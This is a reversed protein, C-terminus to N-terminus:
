SIEIEVLECDHLCNLGMGGVSRLGLSESRMAREREGARSALKGRGGHGVLSIRDITTLLTTLGRVTSPHSGRSRSGRRTCSRSATAQRGGELVDDRRDIKIATKIELRDSKVGAIGLVVGLTESGDDHTNTLGLGRGEDKGRALHNDSTGLGLIVGLKGRALVGADDLFKAEVGLKGVELDLVNDARAIDLEGDTELTKSGLMVVETRVLGLQERTEDIAHDLRLNHKEDEHAALDNEGTGLDALLDVLGKLHDVRHQLIEALDSGEARREQTARCTARSGVVSKYWYEVEGESSIM